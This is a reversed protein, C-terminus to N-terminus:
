AGQQYCERALAVVHEPRSVVDEWSFRLVRWGLRELQNLRERDRRYSARDSHYAFGDAEAVLRVDRWCLDVRAVFAGWRDRIEFQSVPEPVVAHLLLHLLTELVTGSLPDVSAGVRRTRGSGRGCSTALDRRLETLPVLGQRLASDATAVAHM